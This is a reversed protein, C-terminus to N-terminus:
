RTESKKEVSCLLRGEHLIVKVKEGLRVQDPHTTTSGQSTLAISFGRKLIALPSLANLNQELLHLKERNRNMLSTASTVFRKNLSHIDNRKQQLTKIPSQSDLRLCLQNLRDYKITNERKIAYLLRTTADELWLRRDRLVRIPNRSELRTELSGFKSAHLKLATHMTKTMRKELQSLRGCLEAAQAVVMQAAASPTASRLDAALDALTVDIEHGVASVVPVRSAAVARAVEEKNFAQLDEKAGGGRALIIVDVQQDPINLSELGQVIEYPAKEGQVTVPYILISIKPFIERVMKIIDRVAAGGPSTIVGITRPLVPLPRKRQHDFLGEQALKKKLFELELYQEGTGRPELFDVLLQFEGREQYLSLDGHCIVRNGEKIHRLFFRAKGKFFVAKIQSKNDKLSFYHHGGPSLRLNSIEGEVWLDQFNSELEEKILRTLQSVTFFSVRISM